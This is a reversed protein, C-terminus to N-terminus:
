EGTTPQTPPPQQNKADHLKFLSERNLRDKASAMEYGLRHGGLNAKDQESQSKQAL